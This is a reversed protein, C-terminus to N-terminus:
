HTEVCSWFLAGRSVAEACSLARTPALEEYLPREPFADLFSFNVYSQLLSHHDGDDQSPLKNSVSTLVALAILSM